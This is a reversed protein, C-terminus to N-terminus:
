MGDEATTTSTEVQPGVGTTTAAAVTFTYETYESPDKITIYMTDTIIFPGFSAGKM